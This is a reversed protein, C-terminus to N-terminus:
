CDGERTGDYIARGEALLLTASRAIIIKLSTNPKYLLLLSKASSKAAFPYKVTMGSIKLSSASGSSARSDPFTSRVDHPARCPGSCTSGTTSDVM